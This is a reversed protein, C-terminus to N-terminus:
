RVLNQLAARADSVSRSIPRGSIIGEVLDRFITNSESPSPDLFGRAILAERYIIAQYPDRPSVFGLLTRRAPALRFESAFRTSMDTGSFLAAVAYAGGINSSQKILGIGYITGFTTALSSERIQLIPAMDFNLNPNREQISFLESAFGGYLALDGRIFMDRSAPLARNWSYAPKVPNAFETYFRLASDAPAEPLGFSNGMVFSVRDVTDRVAIPDGAQMVLTAFIEKANTVNRYEGLGIVSRTINLADDKVTLRPSLELLEDWYTPPNAVRANTFLTRNWYMVLPDIMIPLALISTRTLFIQSGDTFTDRFTREPYSEFPIPYLKDQHRVLQAQSIIIADPGTGAALSEALETDFTSAPVERYTVTLINDNAQNFASVVNSVASRPLTGWVVAQAPVSDSNRSVSFTALAIVGGVIFVGFIGLIVLNFSKM